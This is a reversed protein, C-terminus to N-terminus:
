PSSLSRRHACCPACATAPTRCIRKSGTGDWAMHSRERVRTVNGFRRYAARRAEGPSVGSAIQQERRLEVHLRMEEDLDRQFRDRHILMQLRRKLEGGLNM